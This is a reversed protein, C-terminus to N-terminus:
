VIWAGHVAALIAGVLLAGDVALHGYRETPRFFSLAMAEAAPIWALPTVSDPAAVTALASGVWTLRAVAIAAEPRWPSHWRGAKGERLNSAVLNSVLSAGVLIAAWIATERDAEPRGPSWLWPVGVCAVTWATAVYGIKWPVSQKLRRHFLGVVGLAACLGFVDAPAQVLLWVVCLGALLSALGLGRRHRVVFDTRRPSGARDGEVDRLRDVGYIFLVASGVLAAATWASDSGLARGVALTLAGGVAAALGSSYAFAETAVIFHLAPGPSSDAGPPGDELM